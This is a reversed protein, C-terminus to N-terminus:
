EEVLECRELYTIGDGVKNSLKIVEKWRKTALRELAEKPIPVHKDNETVLTVRIKM